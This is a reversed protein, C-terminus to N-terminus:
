PQGGTCEGQAPEPGPAIQSSLSNAAKRWAVGTGWCFTSAPTLRSEAGSSGGCGVWPSAHLRWCSRSGKQPPLGRCELKGLPQPLPSVRSILPGRGCDSALSKSTKSLARKKPNSVSSTGRPSVGLMPHLPSLLTIGPLTNRLCLQFFCLGPPPGVPATQARRSESGVPRTEQLCAKPPLHRATPRM